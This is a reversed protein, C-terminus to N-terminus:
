NDQKAKHAAEDKMHIVEKGEKDLITSYIGPRKTPQSFKEKYKKVYPAETLLLGVLTPTRNEVDWFLAYLIPVVM